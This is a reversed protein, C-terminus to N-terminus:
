SSQSVSATESIPEKLSEDGSPDGMPVLGLVLLLGLDLAGAM